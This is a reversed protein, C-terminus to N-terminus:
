KFRKVVESYPTKMFAKRLLVREKGQVNARHYKQSNVCILDYTLEEIKNKNDDFFEIPQDGILCAGIWGLSDPDRHAPIKSGAPFLWISPPQEPEIDELGFRKELVNWFWHCPGDELDHLSWRHAGEGYQRWLQQGKIVKERYYRVMENKRWKVYSPNINYDIIKYYDNM